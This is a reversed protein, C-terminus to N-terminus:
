GLLRQKQALTTSLVQGVVAKGHARQAVVRGDAGRQRLAVVQPDLCLIAMSALPYIIHRKQM